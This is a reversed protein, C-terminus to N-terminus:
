LDRIAVPRWWSGGLYLSSVEESFARKQYSIKSSNHGIISDLFSRSGVRSEGVRRLDCHPRSNPRHRRGGSVTTRKGDRAVGERPEAAEAGPPYTV